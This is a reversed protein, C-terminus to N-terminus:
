ALHTVKKVGAGAGWVADRISQPCSEVGSDAADVKAVHQLGMYVLKIMSEDHPVRWPREAGEAACLDVICHREDYLHCALDGTSLCLVSDISGLRRAREPQHRPGQHGLARRLARPGAGGGRPDHCWRHSELGGGRGPATGLVEPPQPAGISRCMGQTHPCVAAMAEPLGKRGDVCALM